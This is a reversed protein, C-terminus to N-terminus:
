RLFKKIKMLWTKLSWLFKSYVVVGQLKKQGIIHLIVARHHGGKLVYAEGKKVAFIQDAFRVQYGTKLISQIMRIRRNVLLQAGKRISKNDILSPNLWFKEKKESISDVAYQHVSGQYMGGKSKVDLCYKYFEDVLWEVWLRQATESDGEMFVKIFKYFPWNTINTNGYGSKNYCELDNHVINKLLIDSQLLKM